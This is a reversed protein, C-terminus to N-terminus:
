KKYWYFTYHSHQEFGLNKYFGMDSIVYAKKAGMNEARRLTELVVLGAIGKNRYEPITCVPEVYVYDTDTNYWLGCYSVYEGQESKAIIHLEQNMNPASMMVKQLEKTAIDSPMAGEHNFGKWFLEQRTFLDNEKDISELRIGEIPKLNFAMKELNLMLINENQEKKLFGYSKLLNTTRIDEDNVAIGLGNEDSLNTIAYELIDKELEEFGPKAAFFAEGPYFDYLAVGVLEDETFWLGIREIFSRDLEPHFYMWEWRAWNWNIHTHNSRSIEILFDHVANYYKDEFKKFIFKM